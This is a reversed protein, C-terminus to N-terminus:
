TPIKYNKSALNRFQLVPRFLLSQFFHGNYTQFPPPADYFFTKQTLYYKGKFVEMNLRPFHRSFVIRLTLFLFCQKEIYNYSVTEPQKLM